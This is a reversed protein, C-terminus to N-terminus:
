NSGNEEGPRDDKSWYWPQSEELPSTSCKKHMATHSQVDVWASARKHDGSSLAHM